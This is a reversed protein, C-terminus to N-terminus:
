IDKTLSFEISAELRQQTIYDFRTNQGMGARDDALNVRTSAGYQKM